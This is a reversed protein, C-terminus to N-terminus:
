SLGESPCILTDYNKWQDFIANPDSFFFIDADCYVVSDIGYKELIYLILPAKITWCYEQMSRNQKINLLQTDEVESMNIITMNELKLNSLISFSIEDM